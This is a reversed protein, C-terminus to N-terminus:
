PKKFSALRMWQNGDFAVYNTRPRKIFYEVLQAIQEDTLTAGYIALEYLDFSAGDNGNLDSGIVGGPLDLDGLNVRFPLKVPEGVSQANVFVRLSTSNSSVGAECVLYIPQSTPIGGNGLPVQLPHPEGDADILSVTFVNGASLYISLRERNVHGFDFLYKRRSVPLHHISIVMHLSLGPNRSQEVGLRIDPKRHSFDQFFGHISKWDSIFAAVGGMVTLFILVPYVFRNNKAWRSVRDFRTLNDSETMKTKFVVKHKPSEIVSLNGPVIPQLLEDLGKYYDYRFDAFKKDQLFLPIECDEIIAPLIFVQERKLESELAANLEKKVWASKVSNQSLIIVLWGSSTIGEAIKNNLSDGVKIEWEDFWVQIGQSKLDEALKRVFENDQSSHSLFVCQATKM